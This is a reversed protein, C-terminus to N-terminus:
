EAYCYRISILSLLNSHRNSVDAWSSPHLAVMHVAIQCSYISEQLGYTTLGEVLIKEIARIDVYGCLYGAEDFFSNAFEWIQVAM